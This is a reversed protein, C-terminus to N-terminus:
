FWFLFKLYDTIYKFIFYEYVHIFIHIFFKIRNEYALPVFSLKLLFNLTKYGGMEQVDAGQRGKGKNRDELGPEEYKLWFNFEM